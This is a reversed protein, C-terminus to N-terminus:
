ARNGARQMDQLAEAVQEIVGAWDGPYRQRFLRMNPYWPSDTRDLMWRWDPAYPLLVWVTKGMAGVLHAIATDVTIILDLQNAIAATDAFDTIHDSMNQIHTQWGLQKLEREAEGKQLSYFHTNPLRLLRQFAVLPCSRRRSPYKAVFEDRAGWAIGITLSTSDRPVQISSQAPPHVYPIPAPIAELRTKLLRPLSMMPLYVDFPPLEVEVPVLQSIGPVTAFLRLLPEQCSVIIYGGFRVLIPVYRIFQITDGLGQEPVLLLRRGLLPSGDWVPRNLSYPNSQKNGWRAEYETFGTMLDGTLLHCIGRSLRAEYYKPNLAIAQNYAEIAASSNGQELLTNGLNYYAFATPKLAIARQHYYVAEELAGAERLANALNDHVEAFNPALALAREYVAIAEETSGQRRLVVGLNNYASVYNPNLTIAQQYHNIAAKTDGGDQCAIGLNYYADVHQPNLALVKQYTAIAEDFKGQAHFVNGLNNLTNTDNPKLKLVRQFCAIAEEFQAMQCAMIGLLLLADVYDPQQQLTQRCLRTAEVYQRQQYLQTAAELAESTNM